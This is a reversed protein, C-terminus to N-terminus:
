WSAGIRRSRKSLCTALETRHEPLELIFEAGQGRGESRVTLSGGLERAALAGGHLGFGHGSARTTFGHNFIRTLNEPAIGVGNDIVAIRARGNESMVRLIVSATRVVPSRVPTSPM